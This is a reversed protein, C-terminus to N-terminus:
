VTFTETRTEDKGLEQVSDNNLTYTWKSRFLTTYPVYTGQGRDKVSWTHEDNTDVDAVSLQGEAKGVADEKVAGDAKGSIEPKDNTGTITITVEQTDAGGKGDSVEVTFTETRTEGKGLDQVSDNNLTYTWK